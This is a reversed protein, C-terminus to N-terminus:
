MYNNINVIFFAGGSVGDHCRSQPYHPIDKTPESKFRRGPSM